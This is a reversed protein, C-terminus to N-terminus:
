GPYSRGMHVPGLYLRVHIMKITNYHNYENNYPYLIAIPVGTRYGVGAHICAIYTIPLNSLNLHCKASGINDYSLQMNM